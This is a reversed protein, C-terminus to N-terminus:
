NRARAAGLERRIREAEKEAMQDKRSKFTPANALEEKKIDM